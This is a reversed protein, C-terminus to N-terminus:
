QTQLVYVTSYTANKKEIIPRDSGRDIIPRDSGRDIPGKENFLPGISRNLIPRDSGRDLPGKEFIPRDSGRDLPGKQRDSGGDIPIGGTPFWSLIFAHWTGKM